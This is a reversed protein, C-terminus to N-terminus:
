IVLNLWSKSYDVDNQNSQDELSCTIGELKVVKLLTLSFVEKLNSSERKNFKSKLYKQM